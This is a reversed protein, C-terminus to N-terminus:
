PKPKETHSDAPKANKGFWQPQSLHDIHPSLANCFLIAYMVGEPLGSWLRIIVTLAGICLGYIFCGKNSLPSAVMDTAMFLAGLMLGGSFLMFFVDAYVLPNIWHLLLASLAVASFIGAPIRWNMFNKYILYVACILIVLASGEGLSGNSLGLFLSTGSSDVGDFKMLALPTASSTSDYQPSLFPLATISSPISSFRNDAFPDAWTTMSTPFAAQLFARGVLAPNFVNCGLGGFLYKGLGISVVSGIVVMWLPIHPPLTLAFLLGTIAASWDGVTSQAQANKSLLHETLVCSGVSTVIILLAAWGYSYVSFAVIPLLAYVVHRMITDVSAGSSIHPSTAINLIPGPKM